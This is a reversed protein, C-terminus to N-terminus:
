KAPVAKKSKAYASWLKAIPARADTVKAFTALADDLKGQDTQAIGLRLQARTTEVGPKALAIAYFEEAKAADDYSLYADGAAMATAATANAARADKDLGPLSAKDAAIRGTAQAKADTVFVDSTTLMGSALGANLIKLAEGPLRRPDAAQVYEVYDRAEAFSNTREMLRLLDIQDQGTYKSMDRVVALGLSWNEKTPYAGVLGASLNIAQEALKAKYAVAVGHRYWDAPTAAGHKDIAAQLIKLGEVAQNDNIYADALLTEVGDATYGAAIASQFATRAAAYDKMDYSLGGIYFNYKGQDAPALKGSEVMAQLGRRQLPKDFATNGLNLALQGAVFKDDGNTAAAFAKDLQAKEPQLLTGLAAVSADYDAKTQARAQKGQASRYATESAQVKNRAETVDQRKALADLMTKTAQYVPIFAKSPALKPAEPAKDKALAPTAVTGAALGLGLVLGLATRAFIRSRIM